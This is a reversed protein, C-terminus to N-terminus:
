SPWALLMQVYRPNLTLTSGIHKLRTTMHMPGTRARLGAAPIAPPSIYRGIARGGMGLFWPCSPNPKPSTLCPSLSRRLMEGNLVTTDVSAM